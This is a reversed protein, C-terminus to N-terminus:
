LSFKNTSFPGWLELDPGSESDQRVKPDLVGSIYPGLIDHPAIDEFLM